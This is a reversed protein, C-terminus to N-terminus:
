SIDIVDVQISPCRSAIVAMTPVGVYGAGICCIKVMKKKALM